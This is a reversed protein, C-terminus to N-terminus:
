PALSQGRSFNYLTFLNFKWTSLSSGRKHFILTSGCCSLHNEDARNHSPFRGSMDLQCTHSSFWAGAGFHYSNGNYTFIPTFFASFCQKYYSICIPLSLLGPVIPVLGVYKYLVAAYTVDIRQIVVEHTELSTVYPCLLFHYQHFSVGNTADEIYILSNNAQTPALIRNKQILLPNRSYLYEIQPMKRINTHTKHMLLNWFLTIKLKFGSELASSSSILRFTMSSHKKAYMSAYYIAHLDGNQPMKLTNTDSKAM